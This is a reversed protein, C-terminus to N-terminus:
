TQSGTRIRPSPDHLRMGMNDGAGKEQSCVHRKFAWLLPLFGPIVETDDFRLTSEITIYHPSETETIIAIHGRVLIAMSGFCCLVVWSSKWKIAMVCFVAGSIGASPSLANSYESDPTGLVQVFSSYSGAVVNCCPSENRVGRTTWWPATFALLLESPFGVM